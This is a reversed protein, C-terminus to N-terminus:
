SYLSLPYGKLSFYSGKMRRSSSRSSRVATRCYSSRNEKIGINTYHKKNMGLSISDPDAIGVHAMTIYNPRGNVQAGVLVTPLPYLCNRGGIDKKM